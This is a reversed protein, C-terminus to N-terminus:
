KMGAEIKVYRSMSIAQRNNIAQKKPRAMPVFHFTRYKYPGAKIIKKEISIQKPAKSFQSLL